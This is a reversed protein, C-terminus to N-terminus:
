KGSEKPLEQVGLGCGVAAEEKWSRGHKANGHAAAVLCGEGGDVGM